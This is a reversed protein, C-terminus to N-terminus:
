GREGVGGCWEVVDGVGGEGEGRGGDHEGLAAFGTGHEADEVDEPCARVGERESWGEVRRRGGAPLRQLPGRLPLM